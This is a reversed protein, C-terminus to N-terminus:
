EGPENKKVLKEYDRYIKYASFALIVGIIFLSIDTIRIYNFYAGIYKQYLAMLLAIALILNVVIVILLLKVPGTDKGKGMLGHLKLVFVFSIALLIFAALDVTAFPHRAILDFIM